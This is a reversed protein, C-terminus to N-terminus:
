CLVSKPVSTAGNVGDTGNCKYRPMSLKLLPTSKLAVLGSSPFIIIFNNQHTKYTFSVALTTKAALGIQSLLPIIFNHM